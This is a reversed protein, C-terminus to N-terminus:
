GRGPELPEGHAARTLEELMAAYVAADRASDIHGANFSCAYRHWKGVGMVMLAFRGFEDAGHLQLGQPWMARLVNGLEAYANGYEANRAEFTGAADRLIDPVTPLKASIINAHSQRLQALAAVDPARETALVPAHRVGAENYPSEDGHIRLVIGAVNNNHYMDVIDQRDDFALAPNRGAARARDLQWAKLAVSGTIKAAMPRMRLEYKGLWAAHASLWAETEPRVHEPRGTHFLIRGGAARALAAAAALIHMNVPADQACRDHYANWRREPPAAHDILPIRERDDALCNDLEFIIDM